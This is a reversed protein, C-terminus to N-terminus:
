EVHYYSCMKKTEKNCVVDIPMSVLIYSADCNCCLCNMLISVHIYTEQPPTEIATPSIAVPPTLVSKHLLPDLAAQTVPTIVSSDPRVEALPTMPSVVSMTVGTAVPTTLGTAVMPAATVPCGGHFQNAPAMVDWDAALLVM